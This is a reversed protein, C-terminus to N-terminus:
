ILALLFDRVVKIQAADMLMPAHGVGPFEVVKAKPGRRTMEEATEKLLLDSDTGRLLLTPRHVLDWVQWLAVDVIPAKFPLAIAPDYISTWRGDGLQKANTQALHRWQADTLPGFPASVTRINQEFAELSEYSDGKGVYTALRELAAKPILPGIDNM